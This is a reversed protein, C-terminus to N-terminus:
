AVLCLERTEVVSNNEGTNHPPSSCHRDRCALSQRNVLPMIQTAVGIPLARNM